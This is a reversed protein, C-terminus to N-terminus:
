RFLFKKRLDRLTRILPLNLYREIRDEMSQIRVSLSSKSGSSLQLTLQNIRENLYLLSEEIDKEMSDVKDKVERIQEDKIDREILPYDIKNIQHLRRELTYARLNVDKAQEKTQMPSTKVVFQLTTADELTEVYQILSNDVLENTQFGVESDLAGIYTRTIDLIALSNENLLDIFTKYTYFKLHTEDLLGESSYNFEGNLLSLRISAHSVNPISILILGGKNLHKKAQTLLHDPDLVHELVDAIVVYDYQTKGIVTSLKEKSADLLYAADLAERAVAVAEENIDIGTVQCGKKEKLAKGLDGGACGIDLVSSNEEIFSGIISLSNNAENFNINRKYVHNSM